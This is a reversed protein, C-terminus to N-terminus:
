CFLRRWYWCFTFSGAWRTPRLWGLSGCSSCLRLLQASCESEKGLSQFCGAQKAGPATAADFGVRPFPQACGGCRTCVWALPFRHPHRDQKSRIQLHPSSIDNVLSLANRLISHISSPLVSRVLPKLAMAFFFFAWIRFGVGNSALAKRSDAPRARVMMSYWVLSVMKEWPSRQLSTIYM